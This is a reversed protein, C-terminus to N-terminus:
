LVLSNMLPCSEAFELFVPRVFLSRVDAELNRRRAREVVKVALISDGGLEFFNDRRGIREIELVESWIQALAEEVQGSPAEYAQAGFADAEPTPLSNRDLKGNPTLPLRDLRVYAAPAMYEPLREKVWRRLDRPDLTKADQELEAPDWRQRREPEIPGVFLGTLFEFQGAGALGLSAELDLGDVSGFVCSGINIEAGSQALMQSISGAELLCADRSWAGYLPSIESLHAILFVTFSAAEAIPRNAEGFVETRVGLGTTPILGHSFPDYLYTAGDLGEISRPKVQLYLHVPYLGGASPYARKPVALDEMPMSQLCGLLRGFVESTLQREAYKRYSQRSLVRARREDSFGGGFLEVAGVGPSGRRGGTALDLKFGTRALPNVIQGDPSLPGDTPVADGNKPVVYAIIRNRQMSDVVAIAREVAPHATLVAEIEGLEIRFGRIKVQHDERGLFEISGDPRYRGLDGTDYLREGIVPHRLFAKQTAAPDRWYEAALGEGAIFLKGTTHIPCTSLDDKIVHFRQNALPKGYPISRENLDDPGIRHIISWIAAETAGGLSYIECSALEDLLRRALDVPIWDGSLMIVRLSALLEAGQPAAASLLMEMIAPVSNWITVQHRYTLRAWIVPDQAADPPPIVVAAGAGLIGFLDFISLDFELSSVWLGRDTPALGLRRSIDEVTNRAAKHQVAVGKPLGTSGSTYIVYALDEPSGACQLRPLPAPQCLLDLEILEVDGQWARGRDLRSQTCAIRAGARELITQIRQDPQGASIPLFARGTELVALAAIIQEVGKEMVVAVVADDPRLMRQLQHSLDIARGTLEAFSLEGSDWIAAPHRPCQRAADFVAEHLLGAPLAQATANAETAVAVDTAPVLSRDSDTWAADEISLLKLLDAYAQFMSDLLGPPFLAEPADWNIVLRDGIEHVKNDLWTQPTESIGGIAKGPIRFGPLGVTSTFVVPLLGATPNGSRRAIMRQVEVGSIARHDFDEAFQRQQGRARELFSGRCAEDIELPILNTFVGLVRTMDPEHPRDALTINLTFRPSRSWTGLVEAYATLLVQSPTLNAANTRAKLGAWLDAELVTERRAFHPELLLSPDTALPLAPPPPLLDLRREWYARSSSGAASSENLAVVYDRFTIEPLSPLTTRGYYVEFVEELLIGLSEGDIILADFNMQLRYDTAQVRTSRVEFLPWQNAPTVRLAMEEQISRAVKEADDASSDSLDVYEISFEPVSPLIRQTGDQDVVARLIPHREIVARWAATMKEHELQQFQLEMFVHCTVGGLEVLGQRGLWYAEQVPTLPFPDHLSDPASSLRQGTQVPNLGSLVDAMKTLAPADFIARMPLQRNLRRRIRAALRMALLSHGGLEFFNDHRGIREIGLLEAWFAALAEEVPGQPPEYAPRAFAEEPAPLAKRDLKGNPTLPLEDLRVYAAPVM